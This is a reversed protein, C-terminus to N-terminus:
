KELKQAFAEKEKEATAAPGSLAGNDAPSYPDQPEKERAPSIEGGLTSLSSGIKFTLFIQKKHRKQWM